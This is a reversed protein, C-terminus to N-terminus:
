LWVHASSLSHNLRPSVAIYREWVDDTAMAIKLTEDWGFGSQERLTKVIM